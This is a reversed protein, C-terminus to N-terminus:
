AAIEGSDQAQQVRRQAGALAVEALTELFNDIAIRDLESEHETTDQTASCHIRQPICTLANHPGSESDPVPPETPGVDNHRSGKSM